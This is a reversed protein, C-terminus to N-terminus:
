SERTARSFREALWKVREVLEPPERVEFEFGILALYVSLSDLSSSGTHLVCTQDDIAELTGAAPPVRESVAESLPMCFLRPRISTQLMPCAECFMLRSIAMPLSARLSGCARPSRRSFVISASPGGTRAAPTGHPWIGAGARTSWGTRSWKAVVRPETEATIISGCCKTIM